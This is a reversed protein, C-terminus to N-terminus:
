NSKEDKYSWNKFTETKVTHCTLKKFMMLGQILWAKMSEKVNSLFDQKSYMAPALM